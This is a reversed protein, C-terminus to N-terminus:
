ARLVPISVINEVWCDASICFPWSSMRARVHHALCMDGPGKCPEGLIRAAQLGRQSEATGPSGWILLVLTKGYYGLTRRMGAIALSAEHSSLAGASVAVMVAARAFALLLVGRPLPRM